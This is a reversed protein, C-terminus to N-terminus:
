NWAVLRAFYALCVCILGFVWLALCKFDKPKKM